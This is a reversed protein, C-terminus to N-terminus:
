PGAGIAFDQDTDIESITQPLDMVSPFAVSFGDSSSFISNHTTSQSNSLCVPFICVFM